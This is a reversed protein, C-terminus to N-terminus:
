ADKRIEWETALFRLGPIQVTFETMNMAEEVLVRQYEVSNVGMALLSVPDSIYATPFKFPSCEFM